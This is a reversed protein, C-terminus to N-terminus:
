KAVRDAIKSAPRAALNSDHCARLGELTLPLETLMAYYLGDKVKILSATKLASGVYGGMANKSNVNYCICDGDKMRPEIRSCPAPDSVQYDIASLPDRLKSALATDVAEKQAEHLGPPTAEAPKAQADYCALREIDNTIESCSVAALAAAFLVFELM